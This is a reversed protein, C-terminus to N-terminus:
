NEAAAGGASAGPRVHIVDGTSVAVLESGPTRIVLRGDDDIAEAWGVLRGGPREVVVERGLTSCARRYAPLVAPWAQLHHELAILWAALLESRDIRHGVEEDAWAAGPPAKHVNLGIGIVVADGTAEALIGALKGTRTVLDNPWKLDPTFAGVKWCAERAALGAAATLVYWRSRPVGAPRVLVSVLLATGSEAEWSRDLRGRGATQWEAAVVTGDRAGAAARGALLRNTSETTALVEIATFRASPGLLSRVREANLV